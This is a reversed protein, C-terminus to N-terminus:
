KLMYGYKTEYDISLQRPIIKVIDDVGKAKACEAAITDPLDRLLEKDEEIKEVVETRNKILARTQLSDLIALKERRLDRYIDIIFISFMELDLIVKKPNNNDDFRAKDIHVLIAKGEVTKIFDDYKKVLTKSKKPIIGDKRLNTESEMSVTFALKGADPLIEYFFINM